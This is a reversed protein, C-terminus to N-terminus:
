ELEDCRVLSGTKAVESGSACKHGETRLVIRQQQPVTRRQRQRPLCTTSSLQLPFTTFQLIDNVFHHSVAAAGASISRQHAGNIVHVSKNALSVIVDSISYIELSVKIANSPQRSHLCALKHLACNLNM